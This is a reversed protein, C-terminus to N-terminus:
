EAELLNRIAAAADMTGVEWTSSPDSGPAITPAPTNDAVDACREVILRAFAELQAPWAEYYEASEDNDDIRIMCDIKAQKALEEINLKM